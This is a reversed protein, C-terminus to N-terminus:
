QEISVNKHNNTKINEQKRVKSESNKEVYCNLALFLKPSM